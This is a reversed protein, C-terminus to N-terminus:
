ILERYLAIKGKTSVGGRAQLQVRSVSTILNSDMDLLVDNTYEEGLPCEQLIM